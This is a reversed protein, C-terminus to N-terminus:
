RTARAARTTRSSRLAPRRVANPSATAKTQSKLWKDFAAPTMVIAETRMVAHGLGCLETCIVPYTGIRNPTIHLPTDIGPVTDQKQGFEPVWFSHIVDKSHPAAAGLPEVPLRLTGSTM